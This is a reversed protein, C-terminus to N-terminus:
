AVRAVIVAPSTPLQTGGAPEETVMVESVGGLDGPVAVTGTGSATPAFLSSTAQPLRGRRKLWVEYVDGARPQPLGAVTLWAHGGSQHLAASAGALTVEASIVRANGAGGGAGGSSSSSFSLAGIAVGGALLASAGLAVTAPRVGRPTWWARLGRPGAAAAGAVEGRRAEERRAEERRAEARVIAMVQGKVHAPAALQPVASPLVDVAPALAGLEDGCVACGRVHELFRVAREGDLLDLLYLAADGCGGDGGGGRSGDDSPPRESRDRADSM